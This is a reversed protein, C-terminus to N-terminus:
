RLPKNLPSHVKKEYLYYLTNKNTAMSRAFLLEEVLTNGRVYRVYAMPLTESDRVTSEDRQIAFECNKLYDFLKNEVDKAM